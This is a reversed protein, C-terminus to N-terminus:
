PNKEKNLMFEDVDALPKGDLSWYQVIIRIPNGNTGAGRLATTRIVQIVEASDTGRNIDM